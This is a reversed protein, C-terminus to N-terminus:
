DDGKKTRSYGGVGHAQYRHSGLARADSFTKACEPCVEKGEAEIIHLVRHLPVVHKDNIRVIQADYDAEITTRESAVMATEFSGGIEVGSTFRVQQVKAM